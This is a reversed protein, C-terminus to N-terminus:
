SINNTQTNIIKKITLNDQKYFSSFKHVLYPNASLKDLLHEINKRGFELILSKVNSKEVQGIDIRIYEELISIIADKRLMINQAGSIETFAPPVQAEIPFERLLDACFSHITSIRANTLEERIEKLKELTIINKENIILEEIKNVVKALMEAAAKRTFTIAVINKPRISYNNDNFDNAKNLLINIYRNVLVRTKGSGANATVALHRDFSQAIKQQRTDL